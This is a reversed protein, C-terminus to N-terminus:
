SNVTLLNFNSVAAGDQQRIHKVALTFNKPAYFNETVHGYTGRGLERKEILHDAKVRVTTGDPFHLDGEDSLGAPVEGAARNASNETPLKILKNALSHVSM